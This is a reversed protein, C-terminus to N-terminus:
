SFRCAPVQCKALRVAANLGGIFLTTNSQDMDGLLGAVPMGAGGAGSHVAGGRQRLARLRLGQLALLDPGHDGAPRAAPSLSEAAGPGPAAERRLSSVIAGAIVRAWASRTVPNLPVRPNLSM